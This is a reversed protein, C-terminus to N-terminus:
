PVLVIRRDATGAARGVVGGGGLALVQDGPELGGRWTLAMHAAVASLLVARM